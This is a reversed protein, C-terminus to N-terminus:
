STTPNLKSFNQSNKCRYKGLYMGVIKKTTDKDPKPTLTRTAEYFTKQLTGEETKQFPKLLIHILEKYTQYFIGTFGPLSNM